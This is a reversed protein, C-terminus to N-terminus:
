IIGGKCKGDLSKASLENCREKLEAIMEHIKPVQEERLDLVNGSQDM